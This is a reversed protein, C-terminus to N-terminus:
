PPSAPGATRDRRPRGRDRRRAIDIIGRSPSLVLVEPSPIWRRHLDRLLAEEMPAQTRDHILPGTNPHFRAGFDAGLVLGLAALVELSAEQDGREIHAVYAPDISAARAVAAASLGADLRMRRLEVGAARRLELARQRADRRIKTDGM